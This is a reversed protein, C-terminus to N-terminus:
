EDSQPEEPKESKEPEEGVGCARKARYERVEESIVALCMLIVGGVVFIDAINFVAFQVFRLEIFDVVYGQRARDILNGVGGAVIIGVSAFLLRDKIRGTFVAVLIGFLAVSTFIILFTQRGSLWGFAMGNNHIHTIDVLRLDGIRLGRVVGGLAINQVVLWKTLQDLGVLVAIV